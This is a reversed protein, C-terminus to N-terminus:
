KFMITSEVAKKWGEVLTEIDQKSQQPKFVREVSYKDRLQNKDKFIGVALAALMAAGLATTEFNVPRVIESQLLDAQFQMLYNNRCAGGDVQLAKLPLGTDNQMAEIVDYSQYALSELTARVLHDTTTGRTLGFIAGRVNQQWYPAGMGTFAPVVYVGGSDELSRAIKDCEGASDILKLGDRLWQIAAGAVFVSGELVYVVESGIKWGVSTVLGYKSKIPKDGTNFLMFCGTGYTNKCQGKDFCMQGFLASQQDGCVAAIPMKQGFLETYGYVEASDKIEPLIVEPINWIDLLEKDWNLTNINMLMTRSANTVDTIHVKGGTLKYVLWSDVTGFLLEGKEAREQGNEINDLIWRIKSASFYPDIKLGTKDKIIEEYGKSAVEDCLSATQRSQWVLADYVPLGTKKDWIITTERQNTIGICKIDDIDVKAMEVAKLCVFEVSTWIENADMQVWGPYPFSNPIEQQFVSVINLDEDIVMARSSTTGQDIALIYNAMNDLPIVRKM